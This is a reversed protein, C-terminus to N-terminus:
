RRPGAAAPSSRRHSVVDDRQELAGLRGGALVQVGGSRRLDLGPARRTAPASTSWAGASGTTVNLRANAMPTSSGSVSAITSSSSASVSVSCSAGDTTSSGTRARRVSPTCQAFTIRSAVGGAGGAVSSATRSSSGRSPSSNPRTTAAANSIGGSTTGQSAASTPRSPQRM